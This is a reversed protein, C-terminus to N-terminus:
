YNALITLRLRHQNIIDGITKLIMRQIQSVSVSNLQVQMMTILKVECKFWCESSSMGALDSLLARKMGRLQFEIANNRNFFFAQNKYLANRFGLLRHSTFVFNVSTIYRGVNEIVDVIPTGIRYSGIGIGIGIVKM